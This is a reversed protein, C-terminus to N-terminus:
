QFCARVAERITAADQFQCDVLTVQALFRDVVPCPINYLVLFPADSGIIRFQEDIGNTFLAKLAGRHLAGGVGAWGPSCKLM